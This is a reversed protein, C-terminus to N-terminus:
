NGPHTIRECHRLRYTSVHRVQVTDRGDGCDVTGRGYYAIVHDNGAGATITNRGHGAYLWDNGDGGDLRDHQATGNLRINSDGWIVDAGGAGSLTDSGNRGLIWDNWRTGAFEQGRDSDLTVQWRLGTMAPWPTHDVSGNTGGPTKTGFGPWCKYVPRNYPPCDGCEAYQPHGKDTSNGGHYPGGACPFASYRAGATPTLSLAVAAALTGLAVLLATPRSTM